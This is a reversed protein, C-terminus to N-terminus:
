ARRKEKKKKVYEYGLILEYFSSAGFGLAFAFLLEELPVGSIMYGSMNELRWYDTIATPYIFIILKQWLFTIIMMIIGSVITPIIFDKRLIMSFLGVIFPPLIHAWISNIGLVDVLIYFCLFTIIYFIPILIWMKKRKTQVSKYGLTIEFIEASLGGFMLGYLFDEFHFINNFIYPPNWYDIDAYCYGIAIAAFGFLTGCILIEKRSDKNRIFGYLWLPLLLLAGWLYFTSELTLEYSFDM